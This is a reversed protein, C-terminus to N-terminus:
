KSMKYLQQLVWFVSYKERKVFEALGAEREKKTAKRMIDENDGKAFDAVACKVNNRGNATTFPKGGALRRLVVAVEKPLNDMLCIAKVAGSLSFKEEKYATNTAVVFASYNSTQKNNTKM